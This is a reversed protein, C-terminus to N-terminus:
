VMEARNEEIARAIDDDIKDISERIAKFIDNAEAKKEEKDIESQSRAKEPSEAEGAASRVAESVANLTAAGIAENASKIRGELSAIHSAASAIKNALDAIKADEEAKQRKLEAIKERHDKGNVIENKIQDELAKIKADLMASRTEASMKSGKLGELEGNAADLECNLKELELIAAKQAETVKEAMSTLVTELIALRRQTVDLRAAETENKLRAVLKELDTMAGSTVRLSAGALVPADKATQAAPANDQAVSLDGSAVAKNINLEVAM